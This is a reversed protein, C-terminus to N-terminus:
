KSIIVKKYQVSGSQNNTFKATYCGNSFNSLDLEEMNQTSKYVSRGTADIIELTSHAANSLTFKGNSPNPTINITQITSKNIGDQNALLKEVILDDFFFGNGTVFGDSVLRFRLKIQQGAFSSLNIEEQVWDAKQGDYVPQNMDQYQNGTVTYKGCLPMWNFGDTSASIQGYDYGSEIDWKAYFKLIAQSADTLDIFNNLVLHTNQDDDYNGTPSDSICSPSSKFTATTIGWTNNVNSSWGTLTTGNFSYVSTPSGFIKTITDTHTFTGNELQLMFKITSGSATNSKLTLAISDNLSQLLYLPYSKTGGVSEINNSIPILSVSYTGSSDFGVCQLNFLIQTNLENLTLSGTEQIDAAKGQIELTKMNEFFALKCLPIIRDVQPWFGDDAAGLEPTFALIKGQESIDDYMWDDSGGNAFYGVTEITNGVKFKNEKSLYNLQARYIASDACLSGDHGYPFILLNSYTHYNVVTRFNHENCFNRMIQTEKESFPAIGRYLDTTGDPSSGDDDYGWNVGYNRNLDVGFSGDGNDRRNKRWMGGGMPDTTQNYVYGDPNVIPLFYIENLDVLAKVKADTDYSELLHWMFYILQTLSCAERAHHLADFLVEPKNQKVNPNNSLRLWYLNRGELTVMTDAATRPSILNPYLLTMSDMIQLAEEYTYFGGM